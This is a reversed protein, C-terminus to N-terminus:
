LSLVKFGQWGHACFAGPLFWVCVCYTVWVSTELFCPSSNWHSCAFLLPMQRIYNPCRIQLAILDNHHFFLHVHHSMDTSAISCIFMTMQLACPVSCSYSACTHDKFCPACFPHSGFTAYQAFICIYLPVWHVLTGILPARLFLARILSVVYDCSNKVQHQECWMFVLDCCRCVIDYCLPHLCWSWMLVLLIPALPHPLVIASFWYMMFACSFLFFNWSHHRLQSFEYVMHRWATGLWLLLM